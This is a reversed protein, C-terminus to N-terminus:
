FPNKYQHLLVGSDTKRLYIGFVDCTSSQFMFTHRGLFFDSVMFYLRKVYSM